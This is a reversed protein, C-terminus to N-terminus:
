KKNTIKILGDPYKPDDKIIVINEILDLNLKLAISKDAVVGDIMFTPDIPTKSIDQTSRHLQKVVEKEQALAINFFFITFLLFVKKM